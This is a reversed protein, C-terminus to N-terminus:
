LGPVYRGCSYKALCNRAGARFETEDESYLYEVKKEEFEIGGCFNCWKQM